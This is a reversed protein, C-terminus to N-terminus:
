HDAINSPDVLAEILRQLYSIGEHRIAAQLRIRGVSNDSSCPYGILFFPAIFKM